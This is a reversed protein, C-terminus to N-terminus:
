PTRYKFLNSKHRSMLLLGKQQLSALAKRISDIGHKQGMDEYVNKVTRDSPFEKFLTLCDLEVEDFNLVYDSEFELRESDETPQVMQLILPTSRISVRKAVPRVYLRNTLGNDASAGIIYYSDAQQIIASNGMSMAHTNDTMLQEITYPSKESIHHNILITKDPTLCQSKLRALINMDSTYNPNLRGVVSHLCDIIVLVVTKYDQILTCLTGDALSFNKMSEVFLQHKPEPGLAKSFKILRKTLVAEPTDQDVILVDGFNTTFGCFPIEYIVHVALDEVVLSKGVGAQALIIALQGLPIIPEVAWKTEEVQTEFDFKPM